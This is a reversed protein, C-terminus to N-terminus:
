ELLEEEGTCGGDSGVGRSHSAEAPVWADLTVEFHDAAQLM